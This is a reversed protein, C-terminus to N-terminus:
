PAPDFASAAYMEIGRVADLVKTVHSFKYGVTARQDLPDATGASGLQKRIIKTNHGALNVLGYCEQGFMFNRYTFTGGSGNAGREINSSEVFRCGYLKGVENKLATSANIYKNLEMWGNTATDSLLDFGSSPHIVSAFNGDSFPMVDENKLTTVAKRIEDANLVDATLLLAESAKGNAFQDTLNGELTNRVITDYSLAAQYSLIDVSNEVVPDLAEDILYDTVEVFAGYQLPIATIQTSQLTQSVPTAGETLAATVAAFNDYRTWKVENGEHKPLEQKKGFQDLRTAKELRTLLRRIYYIQIANEFGSTTTKTIAM